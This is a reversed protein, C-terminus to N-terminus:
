PAGEGSLPAVQEVTNPITKKEYVFYDNSIWIGLFLLFTGVIAPIIAFSTWILHVRVVLLGYFVFGLAISIGEIITLSM